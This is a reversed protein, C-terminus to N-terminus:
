DQMRYGPLRKAFFSGVAVDGLPCFCSAVCFGVGFCKTGANKTPEFHGV